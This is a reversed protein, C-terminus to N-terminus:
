GRIVLITSRARATIMEMIEEPIEIVSGTKEKVAVWVVDSPKVPLKGEELVLGEDKWVVRKKMEKEVKVRSRGEVSLVVDEELFTARVMKEDVLVYVLIYNGEQGALTGITM